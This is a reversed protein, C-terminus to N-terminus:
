KGKEATLHTILGVKSLAILLRKGRSPFEDVATIWLFVRHTQASFVRNENEKNKKKKKQNRFWKIAFAILRIGNFYKKLACLGNGSLLGPAWPIDNPKTRNKIKKHM